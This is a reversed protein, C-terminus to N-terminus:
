KIDISRPRLKASPFQSSRWITSSPLGVFKQHQSVPEVSAHSHPTQKDHRRRAAPRALIKVIQCRIGLVVLKHPSGETDRRWVNRPVVDFNTDRAADTVVKSQHWPVKSWTIISM